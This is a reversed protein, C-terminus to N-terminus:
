LIEDRDVEKVEMSELAAVESESPAESPFLSPIPIALCRRAPYYKGLKCVRRNEGGLSLAITNIKNKISSKSFAKGYFECNNAIRLYRDAKRTGESIRIGKETLLDNIREGSYREAGDIDITKAGIVHLIWAHLPKRVEGNLLLLSVESSLLAGTFCEIDDDDSEPLPPASILLPEERSTDNQIFGDQDVVTLEPNKRGLAINILDDLYLMTEVGKKLMVYGALLPAVNKANRDGGLKSEAYEVLELYRSSNKYADYHLRRGTKLNWHKERIKDLSKYLSPTGNAFKMLSLTLFRSRDASRALSNGISFMVFMCHCTFVDEEHTDKNTQKIPKGDSSSRALLIIQELAGTTEGEAEEFIVMLAKGDTGRRIGSETTKDGAAFFCGKGDGLVDVFADSIASKGTAFPANIWLHPRWKLLGSLCSAYLSGLLYIPALSDAWNRKTIYQEMEDFEEATIARDGLDGLGNCAFLMYENDIVGFKKPHMAKDYLKNGTHFVRENIGDQHKLAWAGQRLVQYNRKVGVAICKDSLNRMYDEIANTMASKADRDLLKYKPNIAKNRWYDLPANKAFEEFGNANMTAQSLQIERNLYKSFFCYKVKGSAETYGLVQLCDEADPETNEDEELQARAASLGALVHLDNFDTPKSLTDIGSFDPIIIDASIKSAADRAKELGVNVSDKNWQDNDAALIIRAKPNQLKAIPAVHRLNGADFAVYVKCGTAEHISGATSFGEAIFVRDSDSGIVFYCGQKRGGKLFMKESKGSISQLSCLNGDADMMPVILSKSGFYTSERVGYSKILKRALYPNNNAAESAKGWIKKALDAAQENTQRKLADSAERAKEVDERLQSVQSRSLSKVSKSYWFSKTGTKWNGFSGAMLGINDFLVYWGSKSGGKDSVMSCRHLIGDAVVETDEDFDNEVLKSKFKKIDM